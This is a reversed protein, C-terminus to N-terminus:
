FSSRYFIWLILRSLVPTLPLVPTFPFVPTFFLILPRPLFRCLFYIPSRLTSVEYKIGTMRLYNEVKLCYASVSPLTPARPFQYLYVIDQEWNSKRVKPAVKKKRSQVDKAAEEAKAKEAESGIGNEVKSPETASSDVVATM